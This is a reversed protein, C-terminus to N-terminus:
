RTLGAQYALFASTPDPISELLGLSAQSVGSLSTESSAQRAMQCIKHVQQEMQLQVHAHTVDARISKM